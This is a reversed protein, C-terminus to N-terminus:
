FAGAASNLAGDIGGQLANLAGVAAVAVLLLIFSYEALGQGSEERLPLRRAVAYAAAGIRERIERM